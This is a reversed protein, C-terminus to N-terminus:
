TWLSPVNKKLYIEVMLSFEKDPFTYSRFEQKEEDTFDVRGEKLRRENCSLILKALQQLFRMRQFLLLENNLKYKKITKKGIESNNYSVAVNDEFSLHQMIEENSNVCPDLVESKPLDEETPRGDNCEKSSLYLNEWEFAKSKDISVEILHDVEKPLGQLKKESYFCKGNSLNMLADIIEKCAYQKSNPRKNGSGLFKRTWEDCKEKLIKPKYFREIHRM